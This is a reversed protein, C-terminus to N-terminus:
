PPSACDSISIPQTPRRGPFVLARSGNLDKLQRFAEVAQRALPVHHPAGTKMREGPITWEAKDLDIEAWSAGRLENTRVFTLALLKLALPTQVDGDYSEIGKLLDPL